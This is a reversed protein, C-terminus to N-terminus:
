EMRVLEGARDPAPDAAHGLEGSLAAREPAATHNSHSTAYQACCRPAPEAPRLGCRKPVSAGVADTSGVASSSYQGIRLPM